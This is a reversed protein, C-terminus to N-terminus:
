GHIMLVLSELVSEIYPCLSYDSQLGSNKRGILEEITIDLSLPGRELVVVESFIQYLLFDFGSRQIQPWVVSATRAKYYPFM